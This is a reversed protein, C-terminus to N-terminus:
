FSKLQTQNRPPLVQALIKMNKQNMLLQSPRVGHGLFEVEPQFLHCKSPEMSFGAKKRLLLVERFARIHEEVTRSFVIVDDFYVLFTKLRFGSLIIDLLRPFSAPANMLSSPLRLFRFLGTHSTFTTKDRDEAAAPFQWYGTNCDLTSFMKADGLSDLCDDMRPTPYVDKITRENLRRSDVCFRFHGGPKPAVFVPFSWESESPEIVGVHLMNKGQKEIELLRHPQGRYPASYVPKTDPNLQIRHTTAKLERLNGTWMGNFQYLLGPVNGHLDKPLGGWNVEPTEPEKASAVFPPEPPGRAESM